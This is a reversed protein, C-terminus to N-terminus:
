VNEYQKITDNRKLKEKKCILNKSTEYVYTEVLDVSQMRKDNNWSFVTKNIEGIFVNHKKSNFRIEAKLISKM